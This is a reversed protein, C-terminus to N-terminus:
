QCVICYLFTTSRSPLKLPLTKLRSVFIELTAINTDRLFCHTLPAVQPSIILFVCRRAPSINEYCHFIQPPCEPVLGTWISREPDCLPLSVCATQMYHSPVRSARLCSDRWLTLFLFPRPVHVVHWASSYPAVTSLCLDRVFLTLTSLTLM